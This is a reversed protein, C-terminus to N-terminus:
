PGFSGQSAKKEEANKPVFQWRMELLFDQPLYEAPTSPVSYFSPPQGLPDGRFRSGWEDRDVLPCWPGRSRAPLGSLGDKQSSHTLQTLFAARRRRLLM